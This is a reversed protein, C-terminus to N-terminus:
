KEVRRLGFCRFFVTNRSTEAKGRVQVKKKRVKKKRVKEESIKKRRVREAKVRGV